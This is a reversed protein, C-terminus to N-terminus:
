NDLILVLIITVQVMSHHAPKTAEDIIKLQMINKEMASFESPRILLIRRSQDSKISSKTGRIPIMNERIVQQL